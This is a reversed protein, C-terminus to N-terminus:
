DKYQKKRWAILHRGRKELKTLLLYFHSSRLDPPPLLIAYIYIPSISIHPQSPDELLKIQSLTYLGSLKPRSYPMM